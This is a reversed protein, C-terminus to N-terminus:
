PTWQGCGTWIMMLAFMVESVSMTYVLICDNFSFSCVWRNYSSQSANSAKFCGLLTTSVLEEYSVLSVTLQKIAKDPETNKLGIVVYIINQDNKLDWTKFSHENNYIEHKWETM